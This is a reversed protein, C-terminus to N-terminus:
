ASWASAVVQYFANLRCAHVPSFVVLAACCTLCARAPTTWAVAHETVASNLDMDTHTSSHLGPTVRAYGQSTTSHVHDQCPTCLTSSRELHKLISPGLGPAM